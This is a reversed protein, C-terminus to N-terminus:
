GTKLYSPKGLEFISNRSYKDDGIMFGQVYYPRYM